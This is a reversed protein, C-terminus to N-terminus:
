RGGNKAARRAARVADQEARALRSVRMADVFPSPLWPARGTSVPDLRETYEDYTSLAM